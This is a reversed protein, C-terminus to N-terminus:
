LRKGIPADLSRGYTGFAGTRERRGLRTRAANSLYFGGTPLLQSTGSLATYRRPWACVAHSMCRQCPPKKMFLTHTATGGLQVQRLVSARM